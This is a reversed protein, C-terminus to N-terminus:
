DKITGNLKDEVMACGGANFLIAVAHDEDTENMLYQEVHRLLSDKFREPEEVTKARKWNGRNYKIAGRKMLAARRQDLSLCRGRFLLEESKLAELNHM